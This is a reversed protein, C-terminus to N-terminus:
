SWVYLIILLNIYEVLVVHIYMQVPCRCKINNTFLIVITCVLDITLELIDVIKYSVPSTVLVYLLYLLIIYM